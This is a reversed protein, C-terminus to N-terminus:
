ELMKLIELPFLHSDIANKTMLSLSNSDVLTKGKKSKGTRLMEAFKAYDSITSFLGHGGRAYNIENFPYQYNRIKQPGLIENKLESKISDFEYTSMVRAEAKDSISFATEYM